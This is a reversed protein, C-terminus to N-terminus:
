GDLALRLADAAATFANSEFPDSLGAEAMAESCYWVEPDMALIDLYTERGADFDEQCLGDLELAGLASVAYSIYYFPATFTHSVAMWETEYGEFPEYGYSTYLGAYIENVREPTLDPEEYVRQQFEDYLAGDLVSFALDLLVADRITGGRESGFLDPFFHSMVASMGQAHLETLDNDPASFILGAGNYFYSVFHGFEHFTDPYDYFDGAPANFLFPLGYYHLYVTYGERAKAPSDEIDYLHYNTLARCAEYVAPDMARAGRELAELVAGPSCDFGSDAALRDARGYIDGAYEWVLPAFIDRAGQWLAQADAPSYDKIYFVDYAYDAYSDYGAEAAIQRRLETLEVFLEGLAATDPEEEAMLRYYEATLDNERASLEDTGGEDPEWSAYYEITERDYYDEMLARHESRAVTGLAASFLDLADYWTDLAEQTERALTENAADAYYQNSKLTYLTYIRSMEDYLADDAENYARQSGGKEALGYIPKLFSDLRALDYPECVMDRYDVARRPIDEPFRGSSGAEPPGEGAPADGGATGDLADLLPRGSCSVLGTIMALALILGLLRKRM